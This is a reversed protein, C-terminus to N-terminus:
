LMIKYKKSKYEIARGYEVEIQHYIKKALDTLNDYNTTSSSQLREALKVKLPAIHMDYLKANKQEKTFAAKM